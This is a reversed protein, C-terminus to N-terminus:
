SFHVKPATLCMIGCCGPYSPLAACISVQLLLNLHCGKDLLTMHIVEYHSDILLGDVFRRGQVM